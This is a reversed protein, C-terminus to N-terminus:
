NEKKGAVESLGIALKQVPAKLLFAIQSILVERSPITAIEMMSEKNKFSGDFIGGLIAFVGKHNKSFEHAIRAPSLLDEGAIVAMEEEILPAEGEISKTNVARNWLTKKVVNYSINEALLKKRLNETDKVDLGKFKVYVLTKTKDLIESYKKILESKKEKSLAM